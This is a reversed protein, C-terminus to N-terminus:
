ESTETYRIPCFFISLHMRDSGNYPEAKYWDIYFDGVGFGVVNEEFLEIEKTNLNIVGVGFCKDSRQPLIKNMCDACLFSAAKEIDLTKDDFFDITGTAYGRDSDVLVSMTFGNDKQYGGGGFSVTGTAEEIPQGTIRNYRNIELPKIDFTNLSILAVNNQGWPLMDDDEIHEGCLYCDEASITSTYTIENDTGASPANQKVECGALSLILLVLLVCALKKM